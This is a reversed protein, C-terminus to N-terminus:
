LCLILRIYYSLYNFWTFTPFLIILFHLCHPASSFGLSLLWTHWFHLSFFFSWCTSSLFASISLFRFLYFLAIMFWSMYKRTLMRRSIGWIFITTLRVGNRTQSGNTFKQLFITRMRSCDKEEWVWQSIYFHSFNLWKILKCNHFWLFYKMHSSIFRM